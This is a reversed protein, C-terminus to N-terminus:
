PASVPAAGVFRTMDAGGDYAEFWTDAWAPLPEHAPQHSPLQSRLLGRLTTLLDRSSVAAFATPHPGGAAPRGAGRRGARRRGAAPLRGGAERLWMRRPALGATGVLRDQAPVHEEFGAMIDGYVGLVHGFARRVVRLRYRPDDVIGHYVILASARHEIEEVFHWMFLSAVRADGATFLEQRNDLMMKFLPTFTAEIDAIYAVHFELSEQVLLRDYSAIADNITSRLGPHRAVLADLHLRHARAHQAEQRLFAEAEAAVEPDGLKPLAQRVVSVIYKEFAVAIVGIANAVLAFEPNSPNWQFPVTEDFQFPLRRIKLETM